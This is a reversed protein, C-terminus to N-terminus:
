PAPSKLHQMVLVQESAPPVTAADEDQFILMRVKYLLSPQYATRLIGWLNNQEALPLTLLELTLKEISADLAPTNEHDLCRRKLFFQLILSIYRLSQAYDSFRAVFLVIINLHIPPAVQQQTGDALTRQYRDAPRMAHEEEVNVLLLTIAGMKFDIVDVKDSELFVVQGFDSDAPSWGSNTSLFDNVADKLVVLAKRIM